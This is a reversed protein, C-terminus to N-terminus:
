LARSRRLWPTTISRRWCGGRIPVAAGACRHLKMSLMLKLV